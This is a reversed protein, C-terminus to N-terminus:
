TFFSLEGALTVQVEVEVPVTTYPKAMRGTEELALEAKDELMLRVMMVAVTGVEVEAM